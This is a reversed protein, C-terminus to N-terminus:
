GAANQSTVRNLVVRAVPKTDPTTQFPLPVVETDDGRYTWEVFQAVTEYRTEQFTMRMSTREKFNHKLAAASADSKSELLKQHFRIPEPETSTCLEM